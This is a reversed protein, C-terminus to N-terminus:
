EAVHAHIDLDRDDGSAANDAHPHDPRVGAKERLRPFASSLAGSSLQRRAELQTDSLGYAGGQNEATGNANQFFLIDRGRPLNDRGTPNDIGNGALGFLRHYFSIPGDLLGGDRVLFGTRVGLEIRHGVGRSYSLQARGTEFDEEVRSGNSDNPILLDNAVHFALGFRAQGRSLM